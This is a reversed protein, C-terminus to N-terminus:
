ELLANERKFKAVLFDCRKAIDQSTRSKAIWNFRFLDSNRYANRILEWQGYGYTYLSSTLFRDEDETFDFLPNPFGQNASKKAPEPALKEFTLQLISFAKLEPDEPNAERFAKAQWEM